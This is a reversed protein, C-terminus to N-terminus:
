KIQLSYSDILECGKVKKGAALEEKIADKNPEAKIRFLRKPILAENVIEVKKNKRFSIVARPFTFKEDTNIHQQLYVQLRATKKDIARKRKELSDIEAKLAASDSKLNKIYCAINELKREREVNLQELNVLAEADVEGTEENVSDFLANIAKEIEFDIEFLNM